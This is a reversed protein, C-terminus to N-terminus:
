CRLSACSDVLDAAAAANGPLRRRAPWRTGRGSSAEPSRHCAVQGQEARIQPRVHDIHRKSRTSSIPRTALPALGGGGLARTREVTAPADRRDVPLAQMAGLCRCSRTYDSRGEDTKWASPSLRHSLLRLTRATRRLATFAPLRAAGALTAAALRAGAVRALASGLTTAWRLLLGSCAATASASVRPRAGSSRQIADRKGEAGAPSMTCRPATRASSRESSSRSRPRASAHTRRTTSVAASSSSRLPARSIAVSSSGSSGDGEGGAVHAQLTEWSALSGADYASTRRRASTSPSVSSSSAADSPTDFALAATRRCRARRASRSRSRFCQPTRDIRAHREHAQVSRPHQSVHGRASKKAPPGHSPRRPALSAPAGSVNM